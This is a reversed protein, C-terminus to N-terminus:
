SKYPNTGRPDGPELDVAKDIYVTQTYTCTPNVSIYHAWYAAGLFGALLVGILVRFFLKRRRRYREVRVPDLTDQFMRAVEEPEGLFRWIDEQSIEPEEQRLQEVARQVDAVCRKADAPPCLLLSRVKRCYQEM